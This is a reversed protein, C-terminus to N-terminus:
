GVPLSLHAYVFYLLRGRGNVQADLCFDVVVEFFYLFFAKILIACKSCLLVLSILDNVESPSFCLVCGIIVGIWECM